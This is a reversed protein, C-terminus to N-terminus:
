APQPHAPFSVKNLVNPKLALPSIFVQICNQPFLPQALVNPSLVHPGSRLQKEQAALHGCSFRSECSSQSLSFIRNQQHLILEQIVEIRIFPEVDDAM